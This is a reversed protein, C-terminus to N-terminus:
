RALVPPQAPHMGRHISADSKVVEGTELIQKLARLDDDLMQEPSSWLLKAAMGIVGGPRDCDLEVRLLTGKGGPAPDFRVTGAHHMDAGETSRWSILRNPEDQVTEADWEMARGAMGRARWHSRGEGTMEVSEIHRMFQPFNRYDRWFSYVEGPSKNIIVSKRIQISRGGSTEESETPAQSLRQACLVDLATVGLVAATAVTLKTKDNEDSRYAAALSSLDMLDGAVRGWLWPSRNAQSLIGAGAALERMGYLPSRLMTRTEDDERIGALSAVTGPAMVEALGLGISFWGLGTAIKDYTQSGNHV